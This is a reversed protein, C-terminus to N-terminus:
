KWMSIYYKIMVACLACITTNGDDEEDESVHATILFTQM